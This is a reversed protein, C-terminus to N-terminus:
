GRGKNGIIPPLASMKNEPGRRRATYFNARNRSIYIRERFLPVPDEGAIGTV